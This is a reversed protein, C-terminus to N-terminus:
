VCKRTAVDWIRLAGLWSGSVVLEGGNSIGMSSAHNIYGRVRLWVCESSAVDLIRLMGEETGSVIFKGDSSIAIVHVGKKHARLPEGM